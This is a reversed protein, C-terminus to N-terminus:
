GVRETQVSVPDNSLGSTEARLPPVGLAFYDLGAAVVAAGELVRYPDLVVRGRLVTALDIPNLKQFEPWPTMIVLADM